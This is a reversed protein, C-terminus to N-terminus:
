MSFSTLAWCHLTIPSAILWVMSFYLSNLVTLYLSYTLQLNFKKGRSVTHTHLTDARRVELLDPKLDLAFLFQDDARIDAREHPLLEGRYLALLAGRPVARRVRLGWGCRATRYVAVPVALSGGREM